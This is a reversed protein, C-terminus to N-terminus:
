DVVQAAECHEYKKGCRYDNERALQESSLELAFVLERCSFASVMLGCGEDKPTLGKEGDPTKWSKETLYFHKTIVEDHGFSM